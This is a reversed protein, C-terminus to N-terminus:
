EIQSTHCLVADGVIEDDDRPSGDECGEQWMRSALVNLPLGELKGEDNIVMVAGSSGPPQIIQVLGGVMRQLEELVFHHGDAPSIPVCTGDAKLWKAQFKM